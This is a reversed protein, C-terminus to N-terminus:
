NKKLSIVMDMGFDQDDYKMVMNLTLASSKLSGTGKYYVIQGNGVERFSDFSFSSSSTLPVQDFEYSITYNDFKGDLSEFRENVIINLSNENSKSIEYTAYYVQDISRQVETQWKGIFADAADPENSSCSFALISVFLLLITRM